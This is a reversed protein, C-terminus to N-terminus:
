YLILTLINKNDKYEYRTEDVTGFVIVKGLGGIQSEIDYEETEPIEERPDYPIGGDEFRLEAHDSLSLSVHVTEGEPVQDGYAYSCINLFIEEAVLCLPKKVTERVDSALIMEKIKRFERHDPQLFLDQKKKATLALMTIDDHPDTGNSFGSIARYVYDVLSEELSPRYTHLLQELRDKGYFHQETDTSESVGDTYLYILDGPELKITTQTYTEGEFVGLISGMSGSLSTVSGSPRGTGGFGAAASDSAAETGGSGAAASGSPRGTGSLLYPLNHGANSYTFELTRNNYIGAFATLFLNLPNKEALTQNTREFIEAPGLNMKAYQHMLIIAAVMFLSASIGKDSVDAIIILMRDDDLQLYEYLDGGVERAPQMMARIDCGSFYGEAPPLFGEQIQAAINMEAKRREEGSKLTRIDAIYRDINEAMRNFSSCISGFEGDINEELRIGSREGDSIFRNMAESVIRAPETVNRRISLYFAAFALVAMGGIVLALVRFLERTEAYIDGMSAEFTILFEQGYPAAAKVFTCLEHGYENDYEITSCDKKGDWVLRFEESIVTRQVPRNSYKAERVAPDSERAEDCSVSFYLLTTNEFDPVIASVYDLDFNEHLSDGCSQLFTRLQEENELHGYEAEKQMCYCFTGAIDELKSITDENLRHLIYRYSVAFFANIAVIFILLIPLLTKWAITKKMLKM